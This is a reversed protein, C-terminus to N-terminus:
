SELQRAFLVALPKGQARRADLLRRAAISAVQASHADLCAGLDDVILTGESRWIAEAVSVRAQEGGSLLHRPTLFSPVANVGSSSLLELAQAPTRGLGVTSVLARKRSLSPQQQQVPPSAFLARALQSLFRTKGSGTPGHVFGSFDRSGDAWQQLKRLLEAETKAAAGRGGHSSSSSVLEFVSVRISQM